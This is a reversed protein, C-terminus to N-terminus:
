LNLLIEGLRILENDKSEILINGVFRSYNLLATNGTKENLSKKLKEMEPHDDSYYIPLVSHLSNLYNIRHENDETKLACLIVSVAFFEGARRIDIKEAAYRWDGFSLEYSIDQLIKSIKFIGIFKHNEFFANKATEYAKEIDEIQNTQDAVSFYVGAVAIVEGAKEYKRAKNRQTKIDDDIEYFASSQWCSKAHEIMGRKEYEIAAKEFLETDPKIFGNLIYLEASKATIQRLFKQTNIAKVLETPKQFEANMLNGLSGTEFFAVLPQSVKFLARIFKDGNISIESALDTIFQDRKKEPISNLTKELQSVIEKPDAYSSDVLASTLRNLATRFDCSKIANQAIQFNRESADLACDEFSTYSGNIKRENGNDYKKTRRFIM